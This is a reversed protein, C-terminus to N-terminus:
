GANLIWAIAHILVIKHLALSVLLQSLYLTYENYSLILHFHSSTQRSWPIGFIYEGDSQGGGNGWYWWVGAMAAQLHVQLGPDLSNPSANPPCSWAFKSDRITRTQLHVQLLYDLTNPSVSPSWSWTFESICKSAAISRTHLHVLLGLELLSLSERPPRSRALKCVCQPRSRTFESIYKSAM